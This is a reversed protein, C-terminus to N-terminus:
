KEMYEFYFDDIKDILKDKVKITFPEQTMKSINDYKNILSKLEYEIYDFKEKKEALINHHLSRIVWETEYRYEGKKTREYEDNLVALIDKLGKLTIVM